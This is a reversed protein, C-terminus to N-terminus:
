FCKNGQRCCLRQYSRSFTVEPTQAKKKGREMLLPLTPRGM